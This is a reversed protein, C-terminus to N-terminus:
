RRPSPSRCGVIARQPLIRLVARSEQHFLTRRECASRADKEERKLTAEGVCRGAPRLQLHAPPAVPRIERFHERRPDVAVRRDASIEARMLRQRFERAARQEGPLAREREDEDQRRGHRVCHECDARGEVDRVRDQHSQVAEHPGKERHVRREEPEDLVTTPSTVVFADEETRILHVRRSSYLNFRIRLCCDAGHFFALPAIPAHLISGGNAIM